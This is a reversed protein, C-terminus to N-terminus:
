MLQQTTTDFRIIIGTITDFVFRNSYLSGGVRILQCTCLNNEHEFEGFTSTRADASNTPFECCSM